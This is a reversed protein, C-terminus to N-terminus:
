RRVEWQTRLEGTVPDKGDMLTVGMAVIEDRIRDSEAWNKAARAALRAAILADVVAPDIALEAMKLAKWEAPTHQMLGLLRACAAGIGRGAGTVIVSKGALHQM